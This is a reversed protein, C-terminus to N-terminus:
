ACLKYKRAKWSRRDAPDHEVENVKFTIGPVAEPIAAKVARVFETVDGIRYQPRSAKGDPSRCFPLLVLGNISTTGRRMDAICDDWARLPGLAQRLYAAVESASMVKVKM